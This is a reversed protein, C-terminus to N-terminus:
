QKTQKSKDYRNNNVLRKNNWDFYHPNNNGGLYGLFQLQAQYDGIFDKVM